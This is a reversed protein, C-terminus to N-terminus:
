ILAAIFFYMSGFCIMIKLAPSKALFGGVLGVGYTRSRRERGAPTINAYAPPSDEAARERRYTIAGENAWRRAYARRLSSM